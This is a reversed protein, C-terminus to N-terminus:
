AVIVSGNIILTADFLKIAKGFGDVGRLECKWRGARAATDAPSLHVCGMGAHADVVEVQTADASSKDIIIAGGDVSAVAFRFSWGSVDQVQGAGDFVQFDIDANTNAEITLKLTGM